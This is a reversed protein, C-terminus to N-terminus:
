WKCGRRQVLSRCAQNAASSPLRQVHPNLCSQSRSGLVATRPSYGTASLEKMVQKLQSHTRSAYIITPLADGQQAREAKLAAYDEQSPRL